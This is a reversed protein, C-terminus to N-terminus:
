KKSKHARGLYYIGAILFYFIPLVRLLVFPTEFLFGLWFMRGEMRWLGQTLYWSQPNILNFQTVRMLLFFYIIFVFAMESAYKYYSNVMAEKSEPDSFIESNERSNLQQFYHLGGWRSGAVHKWGSDEFLTVYDLFKDKSMYRKYDMRVKKDRSSEEKKFYYLSPIISSVGSLSYGKEQISNLWEEEKIMSNFYLKFKIM